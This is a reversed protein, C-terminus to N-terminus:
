ARGALVRGLRLEIQGLDSLKRPDANEVTVGAVVAIQGLSRDGGAGLPQDDGAGAGTVGLVRAELLQVVGGTDHHYAAAADAGAPHHAVVIPLFRSENGGVVQARLLRADQQLERQRLRAFRILDLL